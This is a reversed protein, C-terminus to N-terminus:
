EARFCEGCSLCEFDIWQTNHEFYNADKIPKLGCPNEKCYPCIAFPYTTFSTTKM